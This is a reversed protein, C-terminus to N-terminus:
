KLQRAQRLEKLAQRFGEYRALNERTMARMCAEELLICHEELVRAVGRRNPRHLAYMELCERFGERFEPAGDPVRFLSRTRERAEADEEVKPRPGRTRLPREPM